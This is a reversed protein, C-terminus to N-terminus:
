ADAYASLGKELAERIEDKSMGARRACAVGYDLLTTAAVTMPMVKVAHTLMPKVTADLWAKFLAETV